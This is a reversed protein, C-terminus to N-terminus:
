GPTKINIARVLLKLTMVTVRERWTHAVAGSSSRRCMNDHPTEIVVVVDAYLAPLAGSRPANHDVDICTETAAGCWVLVGDM